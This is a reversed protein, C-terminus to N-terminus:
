LCIQPHELNAKLDNLYKVKQLNTGKLSELISEFSQIRKNQSMLKEGLIIQFQYPDCVDHSWGRKQQQIVTLTTIIKNQDEESYNSLSEMVDM